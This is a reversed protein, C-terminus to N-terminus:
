FMGRVGFTWNAGYSEMARLHGNTGEPTGPPSQYWVDPANRINRGQVYITAYNHLKWSLTLDVKTIQSYYRGYTGSEPRDDGWVFNLSGNFRRYFYSVGGAVRHPTLNSRRAAAGSGDGSQGVYTRDYNAFVGVGRLYESPLFGLTQRYSVNMNKTTTIRDSLNRTSRFTYNALDPDDNGWDAATYDYTQILNRFTTKSFALTVSGPSRGSFYYGLRTQYKNHYEPDLATNPISVRQAVEDIVIVGALNDIPVRGISKNWGVQWDFNRLIQYKLNVSPFWNHYNARRTVKPLSEFQYKMGDLTLARGGATAPANVAYGAAIVEARTRPDFTKAHTRTEEYRVGFLSRLKNTLRVDAQGYGASVVQRFDRKNAIYATYYNEPTGMYTFQDPRAHFLDSIHSRSVRPAMGQQGNLNFLTFANTKGLEFRNTAQFQPGLNLWHGFTVNQNAGTTPNVTTTNGGPGTYAWINVDTNNNNDRSEEDWKGGLSFITPFRQFISARPAYKTNLTGTWKETIWTRDDNNVRMGGSRNNTDTFSRLDFWDAGSNQRITWEWSEQSPRTATFGGIAVGGESNSFGRELSEYNNRSKSFALGGDVILPGNRYEFRQSYQRSQTTKDSTGGGNSLQAVNATATREAIVTTIGDGLITPRGNNVNNNDNGATFTFNRNWFEFSAMTYMLNTSLVLRPTIKWDATLLMADKTDWRPGDKFDIVRTVWPRPNVPDNSANGSYTNAMLMQENYLYSHSLSDLVGFKQNFFSEAYVLQYNPGFKRDPGGRQGDTEKLTFEESNFTTSFNYSVQRGKRDFARKTRMNINGAPTDADNAPTSTWNIEISEVATISFGEFSTARSAAGGGRNADANATRMGDIAVGVYQGDMGGLRPGRAEPEVYDLDVGPLYKLFEGVNGATVDGFLDSSVSTIINMASRQAQIAKANGERESAVTFASLQVVGDKTTPATATSTINLERVATQGASVTFTETITNYGTFTVSIKAEGAPVNLFQFSGDNETYVVQQTNEMRVEANRVYEKSVPNFVRGQITGTGQARLSLVSALWCCALAASKLWHRSLPMVINM